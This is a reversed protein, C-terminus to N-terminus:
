VSGRKGPTDIQGSECEELYALYRREHKLNHPKYIKFFKKISAANYIMVCHKNISAKISSALLATHFSTLLPESANSFCLNFHHYVCNKISHRHEITGGDTDFLGRICATLLDRDHIIWEPIGVQNVTKNGVKLGIDVMMEIFKVGTIVIVLANSTRHIVMAKYDFLGKILDVVFIAYEADDYKHLTIQCQSRTLGGDGLVIGVFEALLINKAPISFNNPVKCGLQRYYDPNEKRRRQSVQGGRKRGESTGPPGYTNLKIRAASSGFIRGSWHEERLEQIQPLQVNYRKSLIETETQRPLTRASVWDRYSRGSLGIIKAIEDNSQHAVEKVKRFFEIQDDYTFVLRAM